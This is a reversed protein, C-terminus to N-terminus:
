HTKSPRSAGAEVAVTGRALEALADVLVDRLFGPRAPHLVLRGQEILVAQRGDVGLGALEELALHLFEEEAGARLLGLLENLRFSGGM